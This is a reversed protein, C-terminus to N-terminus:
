LSLVNLVLITAPASIAGTKAQCKPQAVGRSGMTVFGPGLGAEKMFFLKISLGIPGLLSRFASLQTFFAM